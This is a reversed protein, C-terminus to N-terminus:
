AVKMIFALAYSTHFPDTNNTITGNVPRIPVGANDTSGVFTNNNSSNAGVIFANRLDPTGGTGDCVHWETFPELADVPYPNGNANVRGSYMVVCGKFLSLLYGMAPSIITDVSVGARVEQATAIRAVGPSIFSAAANNLNAELGGATLRHEVSSNIPFTQAVTNEQAREILFTDGVINIVKVIEFSSNDPQVLTVIFFSEDQTIAPFLSVSEPAVVMVTADALLEEVLVTSANNTFKILM